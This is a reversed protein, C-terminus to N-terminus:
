IADREVPKKRILCRVRYTPWALYSKGLWYDLAASNPQMSLASAFVHAARKFECAFFLSQGERELQAVIEANPPGSAASGAAASLFFLLVSWYRVDATMAQFFIQRDKFVAVLNGGISRTM